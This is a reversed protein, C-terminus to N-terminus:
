SVIMIQSEMYYTAPEVNQEYEMHLVYSQTELPLYMVPITLVSVGDIMDCSGEVEALTYGTGEDSGGIIDVTISEYDTCEANGLDNTIISRYIGYVEEEINNVVTIDISAAQGGYVSELDGVTLTIPSEVDVDITQVNSLYNVLGATTLAIAFVFVFSFSLMKKNM